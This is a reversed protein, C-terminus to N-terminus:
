IGHDNDHLETFIAGDSRVYIRDNGVTFLHFPYYPSLSERCPKWVLTPYHCTAEPRVRIRGKRDPLEVVSGIVREAVEDRERLQFVSGFKETHIASQLYEGTKADVIVAFPNTEGNGAPVVYYFTDPRDLRQVLSPKQGFDARRLVDRYSAREALGYAELSRQAREVAVRPEILEDRYAFRGTDPHVRAGRRDPPPEPDCVAVFKGNWHGFDIGTMYTSQWAAYSLHENVIGRDGGAGCGDTGNAHPPPPALAPQYWSPTPPWPNNVDFGSIMYGVDAYNSPAASATFGRVVIWHQAHYVMAVPAVQYNHITWVIKRSIADENDLAFLTFNYAGFHPPGPPAAPAHANLTWTLGDPATAWGSETTSHSHNDVYLGDQGLLGTGVSDLVMQACAAGCYYDTDQQHYAVSLSETTPM